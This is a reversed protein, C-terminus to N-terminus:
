SDGLRLPQQAYDRARKRVRQRMREPDRTSGVFKGFCSQTWRQQGSRSSLHFSSWTVLLGLALEMALGGSAAALREAVCRRIIATDAACSTYLEGDYREEEFALKASRAGFGSTVELVPDHLRWQRTSSYGLSRGSPVRVLRGRVETYARLWVLSGQVAEELASHIYVVSVRTRDGAEGANACSLLASSLKALWDWQGSCECAFIAASLSAANPRHDRCRMDRLLLLAYDWCAGKQCACLAANFSISSPSLIGSDMELWLELALQWEQSMACSSIAVNYTVVDPWLRQRRMDQLAHVALKWQTRRVLSGAFANHTFEDPTLGARRMEALLQVAWEWEQGKECASIASNYAVLDPQLVGDRCAVLWRRAQGPQRAKGCANIMASFTIVNPVVHSQMMHRFLGLSWEWRTGKSCASVAANYTIVNPLVGRSALSSLWGLACEWHHAKECSNVLSNYTVVNPEVRSRMMAVLLLSAVQWQSSLACSAIAASYAVVSANTGLMDRLEPGVGGDCLLLRAAHQWAHVEARGLVLWTYPVDDPTLQCKRTKGLLHVARQSQGGQACAGLAQSLVTAPTGGAPPAGGVWEVVLPEAM